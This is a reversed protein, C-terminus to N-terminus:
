MANRRIHRRTKTYSCWERWMQRAFEQEDTLAWSELAEELSAKGVLEGNQTPTGKRHKGLGHM